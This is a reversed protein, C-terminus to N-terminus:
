FVFRTSAGFGLGKGGDMSAEGRQMAAVDVHWFGMRLGLGAAYAADLSGGTMGGARLALLGFPRWEAGLHFAPETSTGARDELGMTCDGALTLSGLDYAGGFRVRRPLETTYGDVAYTSDSDTLANDLSTASASLAVSYVTREVTGTWDLRSWANDMALGLSLDGRQWAVGVDMGYGQGGEATIASVYAEGDISSMTTTVQGWADDVHVEYLGQLYSGTVGFAISGGAFSGLSQGWSLSAKAVGYAEGSTNSFDVTQDPANGFLVLDFFDKDLTGDGMGVAGTTLAFSGNQFGLAGADAQMDLGFGDEPIDALLEEKDAQSLTKGAVENYRALTFSNNQVDVTGGALGVTTGPSFALFAPNAAAAALGRAAATRAGGMALARADGGAVASSATLLAALGCLIGISKMISSSRNM